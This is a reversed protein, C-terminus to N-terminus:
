PEGIIVARGRGIPGEVLPRVGDLARPDGNQIRALVNMVLPKVVPYLEVWRTLAGAAQVTIENDTMRFDMARMEAGAFLESGLMELTITRVAGSADRAFHPRVDFLKDRDARVQALQAELDQRTQEDPASRADARLQEITQSAATLRLGSIATLLDAVDDLSELRDVRALREDLMQAFLEDYSAPAPAGDSRNEKRREKFQAVAYNALAVTPTQLRLNGDLLAVLGGTEARSVQVNLMATVRTPANSWSTRRLAADVRLRARDEAFNTGEPDFGIRLSEISDGGGLLGKILPSLASNLKTMDLPVPTGDPGTPPALAGLVQGGLNRLRDRRDARQQDTLQGRPILLPRRAPAAPAPAPAPTPLEEQAGVLPASLALAMSALAIRHFFLRMIYLERSETTTTSAEAPGPIAGARPILDIRSFVHLFQVAIM